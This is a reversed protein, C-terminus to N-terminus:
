GNGDAASQPGDRAKRNFVTGRSRQNNGRGRKAGDHGRGNSLGDLSSASIM